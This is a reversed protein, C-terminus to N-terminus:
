FYFINKNTLDFFTRFMIHTDRQARGADVRLARLPTIGACASKCCLFCTACLSLQVFLLIHLYDALFTQALFPPVVLACFDLSFLSWKNLLHWGPTGIFYQVLTNRLPMCLTYFVFFLATESQQSLEFAPLRMTSIACWFLSSIHSFPVTSNEASVFMAGGM